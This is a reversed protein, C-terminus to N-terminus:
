FPCDATATAPIPSIPRIPGIPEQAESSQEAARAQRQESAEARKNLTMALQHLQAIGLTEFNRTGFRDLCIRQVYLAPFSRCTHLARIKTMNQQRMQANLNNPESIKWFEALVLDLDTNTLKKSSKDFGLAAIHM